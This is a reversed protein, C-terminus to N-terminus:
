PQYRETATRVDQKALHEQNSSCSSRAVVAFGTSAPSEAARAAQHNTLFKLALLNPKSVRRLSHASRPCDTHRDSGLAGGHVQHGLASQLLINKKTRVVFFALCLTFRSSDKASNAHSRPPIRRADLRKAKPRPSTAECTTHMKVAAKHRRLSQRRSACTSPGRTSASVMQIYKTSIRGIPDRGVLAARRILVQGFHYIRWDRSENADALTSRQWRPTSDWTTSSPASRVDPVSRHRAPNRPLDAPRVAM